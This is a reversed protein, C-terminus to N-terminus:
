GQKDPIEDALTHIEKHNHIQQTHTNTDKHTKTIKFAGKFYSTVRVINELRAKYRWLAHKYGQDGWVEM